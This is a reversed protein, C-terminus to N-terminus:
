ASISWRSYTRSQRCNDKHSMVGVGLLQEGDFSGIIASAREHSFDEKHIDLGLPIRMVRNRLELTELYEASGYEIPRIQRM